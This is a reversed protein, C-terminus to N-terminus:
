PLNALLAAVTLLFVSVTSVCLLWVLAQWLRQKTSLILVKIKAEAIQIKMLENATDMGLKKAQEMIDGPKAVM